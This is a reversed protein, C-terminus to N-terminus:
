TWKEEPMYNIAGYKWFGQEGRFAPIGSAASLGAGVVFSFKKESKLSEKIASELKNWM